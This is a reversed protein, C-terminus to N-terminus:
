EVPRLSIAPFGDEVLVVSFAQELFCMNEDM